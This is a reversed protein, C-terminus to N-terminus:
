MKLLKEQIEMNDCGSINYTLTKKYQIYIKKVYKYIYIIFNEDHVNITVYINRSIETMM